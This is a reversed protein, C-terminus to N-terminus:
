RRNGMLDQWLTVENGDPDGLELLAIVKPKAWIEPVDPWDLALRAREEALDHVGIAVKGHGASEVLATLRLVVEPERCLRWERQDPRPELDHARGMLVTYFREARGLDSVLVDIVAGAFNLPM